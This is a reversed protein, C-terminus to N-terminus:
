VLGRPSVQLRGDRGLRLDDDRFGDSNRVLSKTRIRALSCSCVPELAVNGPCPVMNLTPVKLGSVGSGGVRPM